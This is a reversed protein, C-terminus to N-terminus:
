IWSWKRLTFFSSCKKTRRSPDMTAKSRFGTSWTTAPNTWKREVHGGVSLDSISKNPPRIPSYQQLGSNIIMHWWLYCHFVRIRLKTERGVQAWGHYWKRKQFSIGSSRHLWSWCSFRRGIGHQNEKSIRLSAPGELQATTTDRQHASSLGQSIWVTFTPRSEVLRM